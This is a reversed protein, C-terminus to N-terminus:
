ELKAEERRLDAPQSWTALLIGALIVGGGALQLASVPEHLLFYALVSAGIPEGLICVAVMTASVHKLAYNLSGHGLLQPVLALLVFYGYTATRLGRFPSGLGIALGVLLIAAIGYVSLMYSLIDVEARVKRGVLFYGSATMAGFLSMVNGYTSGPRTQADSLTILLGGLGALLIGFVLTRRLPEKFFLLSGLGVFVPNTTVIVVSSLVSTHRLSTMWFYFHAALLVGGLCIPAFLRGPVALLRRGRALSMGPVLVATAIGLRAAAIVAPEADECLRILIAASSISIIGLFLLPPLALKPNM